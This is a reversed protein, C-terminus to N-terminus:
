RSEIIDATDKCQRHKALLKQPPKQHYFIYVGPGSRMGHLQSCRLAPSDLLNTLLIQYKHLKRKNWTKRDRNLLPGLKAIVYWQFDNAEKYSSCIVYKWEGSHIYSSIEKEGVRPDPLDIRVRISGSPRKTKKIQFGMAEAIHRRLASAEVNGNCHNTLIRKVVDRSDGVYIIMKESRKQIASTADNDEQVQALSSVNEHTTELTEFHLYLKERRKSIKAFLTKRRNKLIGSHIIINGLSKGHADPSLEETIKTTNPPITVRTGWYQRNGYKQIKSVDLKRSHGTKFAEEILIKIKPLLETWYKDYKSRIQHV